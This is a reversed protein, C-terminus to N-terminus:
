SLVRGAERLTITKTRRPGSTGPSYTTSLSFINEAVQSLSIHIDYIFVRFYATVVIEAETLVKLVRVTEEIGNSFMIIQFSSM